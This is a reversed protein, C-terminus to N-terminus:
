GSSLHIYKKVKLILYEIAIIDHEIKCMKSEINAADMIFNIKLSDSIKDSNNYKECVTKFTKSLPFNLLVLQYIIDRCESMSSIDKQEIASYLKNYLQEYTEIKPVFKYISFMDLLLNLKYLNLGYVELIQKIQEITNTNIITGNTLLYKEIYKIVDKTSPKNVHVIQFRSVLGKDLKTLSETIIIFICTATHQEIIRKISCQALKSIRDFGKLVLIRKCNDITKYSIFQQIFDVVINKDYLGYEYLNIEYFHNTYSYQIDVTNNGIKLQYNGIFKKIPESCNSVYNILSYCLTKKGYNESGCFITHLLEDKNKFIMLKKAIDKHIIFKDLTYPVISNDM